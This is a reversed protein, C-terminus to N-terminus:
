VAAGGALGGSQVLAAAGAGARGAVELRRGAPLAGARAAPDGPPGRAVLERWLREPVVLEMGRPLRCLMPGQRATVRLPIARRVGAALVLNSWEDQWIERCSRPTLRRVFGVYGIASAAVIVVMGTLWAALAIRPWDNAPPAAPPAIAPSDSLTVAAPETAPPLPDVPLDVIGTPESAPPEPQSPWDAQAAPGIEIVDDSSSPPLEAVHEAFPEAAPVAFPDFHPPRLPLDVSAVEPTAAQATAPEPAPTEYWPVAVPLRLFTWGVLLTVVWGLRHAAPWSTRTLRLTVAVVAGVAALCLTTRGLSEVVSALVDNM